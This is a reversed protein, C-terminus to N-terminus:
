IGALKKILLYERLEKISRCEFPDDLFYLKHRTNNENFGDLVTFLLDPDAIPNSVFGPTYIQSSRSCCIIEGPNLWTPQFFYLSPVGFLEKLEVCLAQDDRIQRRSPKTNCFM